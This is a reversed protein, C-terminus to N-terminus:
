QVPLLRSIQMKARKLTFQSTTGRRLKGFKLLSDDDCPTARPGIGHGIQGIRLDTVAYIFVV